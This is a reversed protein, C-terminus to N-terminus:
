RCGQPHSWAVFFFDRSGPLSGYTDPQCKSTAELVDDGKAEDRRFSSKARSVTLRGTSGCM